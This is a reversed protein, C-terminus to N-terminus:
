SVQTYKCAISAVILDRRADEPLPQKTRVDQLRAADFVADNRKQQFAMGYAERFESPPPTFQANAELVIFKGGKKAKLIALAEPTYGPAVIGDSVQTNHTLHNRM